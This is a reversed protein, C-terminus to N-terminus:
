LIRKYSSIEKDGNYSNITVNKKNNVNSTFLNSKLLEQLVPNSNGLLSLINNYNVGNKLLSLISILSTLNNNNLNNFNNSIVENPEINNETFHKEINNNTNNNINENNNNNLNENNVFMEGNTKKPKINDGLKQSIPTKEGIKNYEKKNIFYDPYLNQNYLNHIKYENKVNENESSNNIINKLNELEM